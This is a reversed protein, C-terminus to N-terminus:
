PNTSTMWPSYISSFLSHLESIQWFTAVQCCLLLCCLLCLFPWPYLLSLLLSSCDCHHKSLSSTTLLTLDALLDLLLYVNAKGLGPWWHGQCLSLLTTLIVALSSSLPSISAPFPSLERSKKNCISAPFLFSLVSKSDSFLYFFILAPSESPFRARTHSHYWGEM